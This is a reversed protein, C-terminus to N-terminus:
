GRFYINSVQIKGTSSISVEQACFYGPYGKASLAGLGACEGTVSFMRVKTNPTGESIQALCLACFDKQGIHERQKRVFHGPNEGRQFGRQRRDASGEEWESGYEGEKTGGGENM